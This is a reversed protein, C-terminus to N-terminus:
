KGDNRDERETEQAYRLIYDALGNRDPAFGNSIYCSATAQGLVLNEQLSRNELMGLCFGANFHDGAGTSRVPKEVHMGSYVEARDESFGYVSRNTHIVLQSVGLGKRVAGGIETLDCAGACFNGGIKRAENENMGVTVSFGSALLRIVSFLKQIDKEPRASPDSLDLFIIKDKKGGKAPLLIEQAAGEMIENMHYMGGWNVLGILRSEEMLRRLRGIGVKEKIDSWGIRNGLLNGFMIKGDTFELAMTRSAKGTSIRTCAGNMELFPNVGDTVDMQGICVTDYDLAALANALIPANGGFQVRDPCIEIDASKGAAGLIRKGFAEINDYEVYNGCSIRTQVVSYLEDIYGDFGILCRADAAKKKGIEEALRRLRVRDEMTMM